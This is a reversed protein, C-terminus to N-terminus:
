KAAYRRRVWLIVYKTISISSKDTRQTSLLCTEEEAAALGINSICQWRLETSTIAKTRNVDGADIQPWFGWTVTQITDLCIRDLATIM